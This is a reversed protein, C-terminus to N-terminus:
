KWIFQNTGYHLFSASLSFPLIFDYNPMCKTNQNDFYIIRWSLLKNGELKKGPRCIYPGTMFQNPGSSISYIVYIVM